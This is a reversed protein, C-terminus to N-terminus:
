RCEHCSKLEKLRPMVEKAFLTLSDVTELHQSPRSFVLRSSPRPRRRPRQLEQDPQLATRRVPSFIGGEIMQELTPDKPLGFNLRGRSGMKLAAVNGDIPEYRAPQDLVQPARSCTL